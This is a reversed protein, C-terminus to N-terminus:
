PSFSRPESGSLWSRGTPSSRNCGNRPDTRVPSPARSGYTCASTVIRVDPSVGARAATTRAAHRTEAPTIAAIKQECMRWFAYLFRSGLTGDQDEDIASGLAYESASEGNATRSRIEQEWYGSNLRHLEAELKQQDHQQAATAPHLPLSWTCDLAFPPPAAGHKRVEAPLQRQRLQLGPDGVTAKDGTCSTIVLIRTVTPVAQGLGPSVVGCPRYRRRQALPVRSCHRLDGLDAAMVLLGM